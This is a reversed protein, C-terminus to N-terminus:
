PEPIVVSPLAQHFFPFEQVWSPRGGGLGGAGKGGDRSSQWKGYCCLRILGWGLYLQNTRERLAPEPSLKSEWQCCSGPPWTPPSPRSLDVQQPFLLASKEPLSRQAQLEPSRQSQPPQPQSGSQAPHASLNPTTNSAGDRQTDSWPQSDCPHGCAILRQTHTHGHFPSNFQATNRHLANHSMGRAAPKLNTVWHKATNYRPSQVKHLASNSSNLYQKTAIDM